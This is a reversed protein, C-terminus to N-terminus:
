PNITHQPEKKMIPFKLFKIVYQTHRHQHTFYVYQCQVREVTAKILNIFKKPIHFEEMAKFFKDRVMSNYIAKLDIFLHYRSVSYEHTKELIQSLTHTDSRFHVNWCYVQM